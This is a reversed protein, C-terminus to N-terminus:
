QKIHSVARGVARRARADLDPQWPTGTGDRSVKAGPCLEVCGTWSELLDAAEAVAGKDALSFAGSVVIRTRNQLVLRDRLLTCFGLIDDGYYVENTLPGAGLAVFDPDTVARAGFGYLNARSSQRHLVVLDIGGDREIQRVNAAIKTQSEKAYALWLEAQWVPLDGLDRRTEVVDGPNLLLFLTRSPDFPRFSAIHVTPSMGRGSLQRVTKIVSDWASHGLNTM